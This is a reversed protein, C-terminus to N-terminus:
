KGKERSPTAASAAEPSKEPAKPMNQAPKAATARVPQHELFDQWDDDEGMSGLFELLEADVPAPAAAVGQTGCGALACLLLAPHRNM